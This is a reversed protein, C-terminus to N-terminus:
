LEEATRHTIAEICSSVMASATRAATEIPVQEGSRRWEMYINLFGGAIFAAALEGSSVKREPSQGINGVSSKLVSKLRSILTGRTEIRMHNFYSDFDVSILRHLEMFLRYSSHTHDAPDFQQALGRLATVLDTEIEDLIDTISHYHTYFTRRNVGASETLESITIASIDKEEMIRFLSNKIAKKTRIVRKDSRHRTKETM